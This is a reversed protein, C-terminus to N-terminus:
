LGDGQFLRPKGLPCWRGRRRSRDVSFLLSFFFLESFSWLSILLMQCCFAARDSLKGFPVTLGCWLGGHLDYCTCHLVLSFSSYLVEEYSKENQNPLAPPIACNHSLLHMLSCTHLIILGSPAYLLAPLGLKHTEHWSPKYAVM